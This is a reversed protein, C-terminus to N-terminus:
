KSDEMQEIARHATVMAGNHSTTIDRIFQLAKKAIELQAEAQQRRMEAKRWMGILAPKPLKSVEKEWEPGFPIYNDQNSM